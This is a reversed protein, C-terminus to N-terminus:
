RSAFKNNILFIDKILSDHFSFPITNLVNYSSIDNLYLWCILNHSKNLSDSFAILKGPVSDIALGLVKGLM